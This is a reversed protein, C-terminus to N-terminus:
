SRAPDNLHSRNKKKKKEVRRIDTFDEAFDECEDSRDVVEIELVILEPALATLRPTFRILFCASFMTRGRLRVLCARDFTEVGTRLSASSSGM